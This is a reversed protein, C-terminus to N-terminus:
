PTLADDADDWEDRDGESRKGEPRESQPRDSDSSQWPGATAAAEAAAAYPPELVRYDADVVGDEALEPDGLPADSDEGPASAGYEDSYDDGYDSRLPYEAGYDAPADGYIADDPPAYINDVQGRDPPASGEDRYSDGDRYSYSYLSGDRYVRRPAQPAEFSRDRGGDGGGAEDWGQEIESLTDEVPSVGPARYRRNELEGWDDDLERMSEQVQRRQFVERRSSSFWNLVSDVPSPRSTSGMEPRPAQSLTEWDSWQAPSKLSTWARWSPDDDSADSRASSPPTSPSRGSGPSSYPPPTNPRPNVGAVRDAAAEAPEYFSQPRYKYSQSRGGASAGVSGLLATFTLTTLAGLVAAGVLWVGLPLSQTSGGLFVLPLATALNQVGLLVLGGLLFVVVVLRVTAM